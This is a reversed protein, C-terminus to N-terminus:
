QHLFISDNDYNLVSKEWTQANQPPTAAWKDSCPPPPLHTGKLDNMDKLFCKRSNVVDKCEHDDVCAGMEYSHLCLGLYHLGKTATTNRMDFCQLCFHLSKICM